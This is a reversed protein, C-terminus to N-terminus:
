SVSSVSGTVDVKRQAGYGVVVVADMSLTSPLLNVTITTRGALPVEQLEYGVYSFVLTANPDEVDLSFEGTANTTTGTTTGKVQVSVGALPLNDEGTVTGTVLQFVKNNIIESTRIVVLNNQMLKYSLNSNQFLQDLVDKVEANNVSIGVKNRIGKADENYLFRYNTQDEIENLVRTIAAQKFNLSVKNQGFGTASVNVVLMLVFIATLHMVRMAKFISAPTKKMLFYKM